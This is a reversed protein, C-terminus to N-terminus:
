VKGCECSHVKLGKKAKSIRGTKTRHVEGADQRAQKDDEETASQNGERSTGRSSAESQAMTGLSRFTDHEYVKSLQAPSEVYKGNRMDHTRIHPPVPPIDVTSRQQNSPELRPAIHHPHLPGPSRQTPAMEPRQDKSMIDTSEKSPPLSEPLMTTSVEAESKLVAMESEFRRCFRRYLKNVKNKPYSRSATANANECSQQLATICKLLQQVHGACQALQDVSIHENEDDTMTGDSGSTESVDTPTSIGVPRPRAANQEQLHQGPQVFSTNVTLDMTPVRSSAVSDHLTEGDSLTVTSLRTELAQLAKLSDQQRQHLERIRERENGPSKKELEGKAQGTALLIVQLLLQLSAKLNELRKKLLQIRPKELPWKGKNNIMHQIETFVVKCTKMLSKADQVAKRSVVCEEGERRFVKGISDLTTATLQVDDAIDAVGSDARSASGVFDYLSTSLKVGEGAIQILSAALGVFEAM